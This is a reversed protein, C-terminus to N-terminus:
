RQPLKTSLKKAVLPFCSTWLVLSQPGKLYKTTPNYSSHLTHGVTHCTHPCFYTYLTYKNPLQRFVTLHLLAIQASSQLHKLQLHTKRLTDDEPIHRGTIQQCSGLTTHESPKNPNDFSIPHSPRAHSAHSPFIANKQPTKSPWLQLFSIM